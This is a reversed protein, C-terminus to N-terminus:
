PSKGLGQLMTKVSSVEPADPELELFRDLHRRAELPRHLYNAYLLGLNLHAEPQAEEARLSQLFFKEAGRLDEQMIRLNGMNLASVADAPDAQLAKSFASEADRSRSMRLYTTGLEQQIKSARPYKSLFRQYIAVADAYKGEQYVRRAVQLDSFESALRRLDTRKFQSPSSGGGIYGLSRLAALDAPSLALTGRILDREMASGFVSPRVRVADRVMGQGQTAGSQDREEKPDAMVDYVEPAGGQDLYALAGRRLRVPPALGLSLAPFASEAGLWRQRGDMEILNVGDCPFGRLGTLAALTPAIDVLSFPGEGPKQLPTSAWLILPVDVTSGYLLLGHTEEGHDGLGEGHDGTIAVIWRRSSDGQVADLLRGTLEDAYAVEGAYLRGTYREKYPSPPEYPAHPEYLHVWLFVKSGAPRSKLWALAREVTIAGPRSAPVLEDERGHKIGQDDYLSFGRDLGYVRRLPAGSVLAATEYGAERFAESLTPVGPKLAFHFNDRIGHHFPLLGTLITAHAPTTLPCTTQVRPIYVGARAVADLHPTEVLGKGSAGVHDWRWTDITILLVSTPGKAGSPAAARPPTGTKTAERSCGCLILIVIIGLFPFPSRVSKHSQPRAM